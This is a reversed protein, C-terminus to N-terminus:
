QNLVPLCSNPSSQNKVLFIFAGYAVKPPVAEGVISHSQTHRRVGPTLQSLVRQVVLLDCTPILHHFGLQQLM